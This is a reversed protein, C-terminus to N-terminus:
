PSSFPFLFPPIPGGFGGNRREPDVMAHPVRKQDEREQRPKISKPPCPIALFLTITSTPRRPLTKFDTITSTQKNKPRTPIFTFLVVPSECTIGRAQHHDYHTAVWASAMPMSWSSVEAVPSPPPPSLVRVTRQPHSPTLSDITPQGRATPGSTTMNPAQPPCLLRETVCGRRKKPTHRYHACTELTYKSWRHCLARQPPNSHPNNAEQSVRVPQSGNVAASLRSLLARCRSCRPLFLFMWRSPVSRHSARLDQM